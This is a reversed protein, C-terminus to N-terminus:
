LAEMKWFDSALNLNTLYAYPMWCYGGIGWDSSWSNRVLVAKKADDYGCGDVAHGGLVKETKKPMPVKGTKAVAESEFSEYVTFGFMFPFGSALCARLNDINSNDIAQYTKIKRTAADAVQADTPKTKFKSIVYPMLKEDCAGFRNLVKAADRLQAGSDQTVTKEIVREEYYIFLRSPTVIPLKQRKLDFALCAAAANATCSGLDGQDYVAPMGARLDVSTPLSVRKSVKLPHDRFDPLQPKWGYPRVGGEHPLLKNSAM